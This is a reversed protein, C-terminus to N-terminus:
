AIVGEIVIAGKAANGARAQQVRRATAQYAREFEGYSAHSLQTAHVSSLWTLRRRIEDREDARLAWTGRERYEQVIWALAEQAEAIVQLAEDGAGIGIETLSEAVNAADAMSRWCDSGNQGSLLGDIAVRMATVQRAVDEANIKSVSVMARQLANADAVFQRKQRRSRM